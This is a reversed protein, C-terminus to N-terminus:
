ATRVDEDRGAAPRAYERGFYPDRKAAEFVDDESIRMVFLIGLSRAARPAYLSALLGTLAGIAVGAVGLAIEIDM